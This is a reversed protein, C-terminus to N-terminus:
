CTPAQSRGDGVPRAHQRRGPRCAFVRGAGSVCSVTVMWGNPISATANGTGVVAPVRLQRCLAAMRGYRDGRDTVIAAVQRLLPMWDADVDVTVLVDGPRCRAAEALSRVVCARGSAHVGAAAAATGEVLLTGGERPEGNADRV